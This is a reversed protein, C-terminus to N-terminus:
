RQAGHRPKGSVPGNGSDGAPEAGARGVIGSTAFTAMSLHVDVASRLLPLALAAGTGEGLCLGLDLLPVLRLHELLIRAGPEPSVHSALLYPIVGADMAAAVLAAANTVYGDLVVPVRRRAAELACGVLAAIELGGVASLVDLPDSRNPKHLALADEVVAVKGAMASEGIGTGPGVVDRAPVGLLASTLAAAATTNGIGIEGLLVVDAGQAVANAALTAGVALAAEAEGRLLSRERRLNRTGSRIPRRLLTVVPCLPAGSLDGAVGVDVLAIDAGAQRALANIAAGGSMVNAVMAATVQSGYASVGEATVGHDAAFLALTAREVRRMPSIGRVAAYWAALDELRGLSGIPKTLRKSWERAAAALAEDCAAIPARGNPGAPSSPSAPASPAFPAAHSEDREEWRDRRHVVDSLPRRTRWRTEELMPRERFAIPHGVCLYAVPEVGAPLALEARLVSPEVISVWGVGIGEARAALWLNEVACCASARVAEPQATTGLIAEDRDRLDVAVCLNLPAELIGELKHALYADRREPPFRRAEAERCALFSRRIRERVDRDRVVVFGWPQSLGVSPARHAAELIRELIEPDVDRDARFHRVDRRLAIVDHVARRAEDPFAAIAEPDLFTTPLRM